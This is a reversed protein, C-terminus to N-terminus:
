TIEERAGITMLVDTGVAFGLEGLTVILETAWDPKVLFTHVGLRGLLYPQFLESESIAEAVDRDTVQLVPVTPVSLPGPATRGGSWARIACALIPPLPHRARRALRSLIEKAIWGREIAREISARTVRWRYENAPTPECYAALEGAILVDRSAQDIAIEGTESVVLCKPLEPEYAITGRPRFGRSLSEVRVFREGVATGQVQGATLAADRAAPSRFELIRANLYVSLRERRAAWDALTRVISDPLPHRSSDKLTGILEEAAVGSELARYTAERTLRYVATADGVQRREAVREIFSLQEPNASELYLIVDFNPQVVWCREAQVSPLAAHVEEPRFLGCTASRGADTLRFLDPLATRKSPAHALQVLGLHFLPGTIARAIWNQERKRWTDHQEREWQARLVTVKEPPTKYPPHFYGRYGLSFYPGIREYIADSLDEVRYWAEPDPLAALGLLLAARLTNFKSPGSLAHDGYLYVQPPVYEVWQDMMRYAQAWQRAQEAFPQALAAQVQPQQLTLMRSAPDARLLGVAEFLSLYFEVADPLLTLSKDAPEEKWGLLKALKAVAPKARLGKASLAVGGVQSLAQTFAVLHLLAEGPRRVFEATGHAVPKIDLAKPPLPEIAALVRADAFVALSPYYRGVNQGRGDIRILLGTDLLANVGCYHLDEASLYGFYGGTKGKFPLGLMLLEGALEETYATRGGRLKILGLGAREFDSLDEAPARIAHLDGFGKRVAALAAEKNMKYADKGAWLRTLRKLKDANLNSLYTELTPVQRELQDLAPTRWSRM